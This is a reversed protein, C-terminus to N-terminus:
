ELPVAHPPPKGDICFLGRGWPDVYVKGDSTGVFSRYRGFPLSEALWGPLDRM